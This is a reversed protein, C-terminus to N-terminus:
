SPQLRAAPQGQALRPIKGHAVLMLVPRANETVTHEVALPYENGSLFFDGHRRDLM